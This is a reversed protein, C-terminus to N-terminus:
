SEFSTMLVRPRINRLHPMERRRLLIPGNSYPEWKTFFHQRRLDGTLNRGTDRAVQVYGPCGPGRFFVAVEYSRKLALV